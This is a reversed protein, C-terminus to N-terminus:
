LCRGTSTSIIRHYTKHFFFSRGAQFSHQCLDVTSLVAWSYKEHSKPIIGFVTVDNVCSQIIFHNCLIEAIM